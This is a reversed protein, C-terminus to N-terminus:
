VQPLSEHCPGGYLSTTVQGSRSKGTRPLLQVAILLVASSIALRLMSQVVFWAVNVDAAM